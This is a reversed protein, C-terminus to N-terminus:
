DEWAFLRAANASTVAAVEEPRISHIEGIKDTIYRVFAPENRKGREPVPALFPADTEILIRELPLEAVIRRRTEASKYTIPGTVGIYFGLLIAHEATEKSGSFSHLVGPRSTLSSSNKQLESVWEELIKLLDDACPGKEADEKERMHIVVPKQIEAAFDLQRILVSKQLEDSAADWYYDLGIEGVAAIKGEVETEAHAPSLLAQLAPITEPDWLAASNPHVGIAAFLNPHSNALLVAELSSVLDLAPILIRTVGAELARKIVEGRDADFKDLNLHCHTDTLSL